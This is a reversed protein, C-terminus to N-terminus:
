VFTTDGMICAEGNYFMQPSPYLWTSDTGGKPINSNIRDTSLLKRQGPSCVSLLLVKQLSWPKAVKANAWGYGESWDLCPLQGHLWMRKCWCGSGPPKM